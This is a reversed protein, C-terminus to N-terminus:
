FEKINNAEQTDKNSDIIELENNEIEEEINEEVIGKSVRYVKKLPGIVMIFTLIFACVYSYPYAKIIRNGDTKDTFYLLFAFGTIFIFNNFFSTITARLGLQLSQMITQGNYKLVQIFALGNISKIMEIGWPLYNEDKSFIMALQKPITYTLITTFVGWSVNIWSAHIALRIYRKYMMAGYAYSAAPVFGMTIAVSIAVTFTSIRIAANFGAMALDFNDGTALGVFKRVIISPICVSLNSILQSVGVKLAPYTFQSFKKPSCQFLQNLALSEM